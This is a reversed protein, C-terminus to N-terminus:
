CCSWCRRIRSQKIQKKLERAFKNTRGEKVTEKFDILKAELQKPPLVKEQRVEESRILNEIAEDSLKNKGTAKEARLKAGFEDPTEGFGEQRRAVTYEFDDTIKYKNKGEVKVARGSDILDNFFQDTSEQNNRISEPGVEILDKKSFEINQASAVFNAM